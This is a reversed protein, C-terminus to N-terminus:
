RKYFGWKKAGNPASDFPIVEGVPERLLHASLALNEIGRSVELRSEAITKGMEMTIIRAFDEAREALLDRAKTLIQERERATLTRTLSFSRKACDLAKEIEDDGAVSVRGVVSGDYPSCVELKEETFVEKGGVILPYDM